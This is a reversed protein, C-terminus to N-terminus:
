RLVVKRKGDGRAPPIMEDTVSDVELVVDIIITEEGSCECNGCSYERRRKTKLIACVPLNGGMRARINMMESIVEDVTM